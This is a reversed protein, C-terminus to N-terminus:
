VREREMITLAIERWGDALGELRVMKALDTEGEAFTLLRCANAIAEEASITM